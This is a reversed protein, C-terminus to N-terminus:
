RNDNRLREFGLLSGWSALRIAEMPPEPHYLESVMAAITRFRVLQGSKAKLIYTRTSGTATLSPEQKQVPGDPTLVWLAVGLKSPKGESEIGSVLDIQTREPPETLYTRGPVGSSDISAVIEIEADVSSTLRIEQCLLSPVSRSAFQLVEINIRAGTSPALVLESSLEGCSMDLTQRQIKLLEPHKLLSIGQVRIDTELACPAPSLSEVRHAPHAFVFGSVCTMAKALPNPGPRIGILGNSLYAPDFKKSFDEVAMKPIASTGSPSVAASRVVQSVANFAHGAMCSSAVLASSGELFSRRSLRM